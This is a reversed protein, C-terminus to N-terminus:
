QRNVAWEVTLAYSWTWVNRLYPYLWKFNSATLYWPAWDKATKNSKSKAIEYIKNIDIPVWVNQIFYKVLNFIKTNIRFSEIYQGNLYVSWIDNIHFPNDQEKTINNVSESQFRKILDDTIRFQIRPSWDLIWENLWRWDNYREITVGWYLAYRLINTITDLKDNDNIEYEMVEGVLEYHSKLQNYFLSDQVKPKLYNIPKKLKEWYWLEMYEEIYKQINEINIKYLFYVFQDQFFGKFFDRFDWFKEQIKPNSSKLFTDKFEFLYGKNIHVRREETLHNYWDSDSVSRISIIIESIMDDELAREFFNRFILANSQYKKSWQFFNSCRWEPDDWVIEQKVYEENTLCNIRSHIEWLFFLYDSNIHQITPQIKM